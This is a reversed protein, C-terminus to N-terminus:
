LYYERLSRGIFHEQCGAGPLFQSEFCALARLKKGIWSPDLITVERGSTSKQCPERTYTLYLEHTIMTFAAAVINHQEHGGREYAPAACIRDTKLAMM